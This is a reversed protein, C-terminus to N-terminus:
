PTERKSGSPEVDKRVLRQVKSTQHPCVGKNIHKGWNCNRCLVQFGSPFKNRRLWAFFATGGNGVIMALERRHINGDNNIHDITMFMPEDEGCCACVYGGYAAFVEDRIKKRNGALWDKRHNEVWKQYHRETVEPNRAQWDRVSQRAKEPHKERYRRARENAAARNERSAKRSYEKRCPTCYSAFKGNKYVYFEGEPKEVRCRPCTKM